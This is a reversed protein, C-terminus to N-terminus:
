LSKLTFNIKNITYEIFSSIINNMIDEIKVVNEFTDKNDRFYRMIFKHLDDKNVFVKLIYNIREVNFEEKELHNLTPDILVINNNQDIGIYKHIKNYINKIFKKNISDTLFDVFRMDILDINKGFSKLVNNIIRLQTRIPTQRNKEIWDLADEFSFINYYIKLFHTSNFGIYPTLLNLELDQVTSSVSHTPNFCKDSHKITSKKTEPDIDTWENVPCVSMTPNVIHMLNTPHLFVTNPYYCPGLCQFGHNSKPYKKINIGRDEM